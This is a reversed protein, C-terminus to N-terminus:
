TVEHIFGKLKRSQQHDDKPESQLEFRDSARMEEFRVSVSTM